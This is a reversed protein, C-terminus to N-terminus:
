TSRRRYGPVFEQPLRLAQEQRGDAFTRVFEEAGFVALQELTLGTTSRAEDVRVVVWRRTERRQRIHWAARSVM